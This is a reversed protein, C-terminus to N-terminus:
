VRREKKFYIKDNECKSMYTYMPGDGKGAEPCFKNQRGTRPNQQLSFM